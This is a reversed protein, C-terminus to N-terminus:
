KIEMYEFDYREIKFVNGNCSLNLSEKSNLFTNIISFNEKDFNFEIDALFNEVGEGFKIEANDMIGLNGKYKLVSPINVNHFIITM